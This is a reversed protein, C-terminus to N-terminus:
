VWFALMAMLAWGLAALSIKLLMHKSSELGAPLLEILGIYIFSGLSMSLFIARTLVGGSANTAATAAWGIGIGVPTMAACFSLALFTQVTSFRAYYIPVGLAFGDLLKHIVVAIMLGFFGDSSNESGVALGDFISHVSLALLFIYATGLRKLHMDHNNGDAFHELALAVHNQAGHHHHNDEMTHAIEDSSSLAPSGYKPDADKPKDLMPSKVQLEVHTDNEQENKSSDHQHHHHQKRHLLPDVVLKDIVILIFFVGIAVLASFPYDAHSYEPDTMEFYEAFAETADPSIHSFAAGLIVGASLASGIALVDIVQGQYRRAIIWPLYSMFLTAPGILVLLVVRGVMVEHPIGHDAEEDMARVLTAFACLVILLLKAGKM